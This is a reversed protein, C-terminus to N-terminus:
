HIHHTRVGRSSWHQIVSQCNDSSVTRTSVDQQGTNQLVRTARSYLQWALLEPLKILWPLPYEPYQYYVTHENVLHRTNREGQM